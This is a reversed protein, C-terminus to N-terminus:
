LLFSTKYNKSPLPSRKPSEALLSFSNSLRLLKKAAAALVAIQAEPSPSVSWYASIAGLQSALGDVVSAVEGLCPQKQLQTMKKEKEKSERQTELSPSVSWYASIAGLQSALGDVVSAVEGM